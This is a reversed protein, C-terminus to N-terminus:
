ASTYLFRLTFAIDALSEPIVSPAQVVFRDGAGFTISEPVVFSGTFGGSAFQLSGIETNNRYFKMGFNTEPPSVCSALSGAAGQALVMPEDVMVVFKEGSGPQGPRSYLVKQGIPLGSTDGGDGVSEGSILDEWGDGNWWVFAEQSRLRAVLGYWPPAFLWAGDLLVALKGSQNAWDGTAGIAVFYVQWDTAEPPPSTFTLSEITPQTLVAVLKLNQNMDGGWGDEGTAWGSVLPMLPSRGVAM